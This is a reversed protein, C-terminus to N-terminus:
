DKGCIDARTKEIPAFAAAPLGDDIWTKVKSCVVKCESSKAKKRCGDLDKSLNDLEGLRRCQSDMSMKRTAAVLRIPEDAKEFAHAADDSDAQAAQCSAIVDSTSAAADSRKKAYTAENAGPGKAKLFSAMATRAEDTVSEPAVRPYKGAVGMAAAAAGTKELAADLGKVAADCKTLTGPESADACAETVTRLAAQLDKTANASSVELKQRARNAAYRVENAACLTSKDLDPHRQPTYKDTSEPFRAYPSYAAILAIPQKLDAIAAEHAKKEADGEGDGPNSGKGCAALAFLLATLASRTTTNV